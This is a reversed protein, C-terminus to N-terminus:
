DGDDDELIYNLPIAHGADTYEDKIMQYIDSDAPGMSYKAQAYFYRLFKLENDM